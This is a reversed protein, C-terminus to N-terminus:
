QGSTHRSLIPPPLRGTAPLESLAAPDVWLLSYLLPFHLRAACAPPLTIARLFPSFSPRRRMRGSRRTM